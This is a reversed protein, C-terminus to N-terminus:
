FSLPRQVLRDRSRRRIFLSAHHDGAPELSVHNLKDVLFLEQFSTMKLLGRFFEREM